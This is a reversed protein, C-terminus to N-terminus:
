KGYFMIPFLIKAHAGVCACPTVHMRRDTSCFSEKSEGGCEGAKRERGRKEKESLVNELCLVRISQIAKQRKLMVRNHKTADGAVRKTPLESALVCVCMAVWHGHEGDDGKRECNCLQLLSVCFKLRTEPTWTLEEARGRKSKRARLYM